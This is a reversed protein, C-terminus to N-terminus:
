VLFLWIQIPLYWRVMVFCVDYFAFFFLLRCMWTWLFVVDENSVDTHIISERSDISHRFFCFCLRLLKTCSILYRDCGFIYLPPPCKTFLTVLKSYLSKFRSLCKSFKLTLDNWIALKWTWHVFRCLQCCQRTNHRSFEHTQFCLPCFQSKAFENGGGSNLHQWISMCVYYVM